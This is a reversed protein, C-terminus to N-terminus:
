FPPLSLEALIRDAEKLLEDRTRSRIFVELECVPCDMKFTGDKGIFACLIRGNPLVGEGHLPHRITDCRSLKQPAVLAGAWHGDRYLMNQRRFFEKYLKRTSEKQVIVQASSSTVRALLSKATVGNKQMIRAVQGPKWAGGRPAPIRKNNLHQCYLRLTDPKYWIACTVIESWVGKAFSQAKGSRAARSRELGSRFNPPPAGM